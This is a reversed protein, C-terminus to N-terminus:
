VTLFIIFSIAMIMRLLMQIWWRKKEDERSVTGVGSVGSSSQLAFLSPFYGVGPSMNGVTGGAWTIPDGRNAGGGRRERRRLQEQQERWAENDRVRRERRREEEGKREELAREIYEGICKWDGGREECLQACGKGGEGGEIFAEASCEAVRMVTEADVLGSSILNYGVCNGDKCRGGGRGGGVEFLPLFYADKVFDADTWTGRIASMESRERIQRDMGERWTDCLGKIGKNEVESGPESSVSEGTM